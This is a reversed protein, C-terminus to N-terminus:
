EKGDDPGQMLWWDMVDHALETGKLPGFDMHYDNVRGLMDPDQLAAMVRMAYTLRQGLGYAAVNDLTKNPDRDPFASKHRRWWACSMEFHAPYSAWREPTDTM